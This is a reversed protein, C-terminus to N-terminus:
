LEAVLKENLLSGNTYLGIYRFGPVGKVQRVIDIVDKRLLPEGGTISVQLPQFYRIAPTFDKCEEVEDAEWYPCFDCTARCREIPAESAGSLRSILFRSWITRSRRAWSSPTAPPSPLSLSITLSICSM